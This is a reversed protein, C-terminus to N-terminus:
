IKKAGRVAKMICVMTTITRGDSPILMTLQTCASLPETNSLHKSWSNTSHHSHKGHPPCSLLVCHPCLSIFIWSLEASSLDSILSLDHERVIGGSMALKAAVLLLRSVLVSSTSSHVTFLPRRVIVEVPSVSVSVQCRVLRGWGWTCRCQISGDRQQLRPRQGTGAETEQLPTQYWRLDGRSQKCVGM